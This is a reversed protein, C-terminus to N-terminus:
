LSVNPPKVGAKSKLEATVNVMVPNSVLEYKPTVIRVRYPVQLEGKTRNELELLMYHKPNLKMTWRSNGCSSSIKSQFFKWQGDVFIETSTGSITADSRNIDVTDATANILYIRIYNNDNSHQIFADKKPIVLSLRSNVKKIGNPLKGVPIQTGGNSAWVSTYRQWGIETQAQVTSFTCILLVLYLYITHTKLIKM